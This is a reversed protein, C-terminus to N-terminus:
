FEVATRLLSAFYEAFHYRGALARHRVPKIYFSTNVPESVLSLLPMLSSGSSGFPQFENGTHSLVM